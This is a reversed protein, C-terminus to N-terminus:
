YRKPKKIITESNVNAELDMKNDEVSSLGRKRGNEPSSEENKENDNDNNENKDINDGNNNNNKNRSSSYEIFIYNFESMDQRKISGRMMNGGGGFTIVDGLKIRSEHIKVDNLFVGNVSRNDRIYWQNNSYIIYAHVRSIM